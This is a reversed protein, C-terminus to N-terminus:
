PSPHHPCGPPLIDDSFPSSASMEMNLQMLPYSSRFHLASLSGKFIEISPAVTAIDHSTAAANGIMEALTTM